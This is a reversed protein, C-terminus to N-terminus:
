PFFDHLKGILLLLLWMVGVIISLSSSFLAMRFEFRASSNSIALSCTGYLTAYLGMVLTSTVCFTGLYVFALKWDHLQVAPIVGLVGGPGAVGHILGACLSLIQKSCNCETCRHLALKCIPFPFFISVICAPSAPPCHIGCPNDHNRNSGRDSSPFDTQSSWNAFGLGLQGELENVSSALTARSRDTRVSDNVGFSDTEGLDSELQEGQTIACNSKENNGVLMIGHQMEDDNARELNADGIERNNSSHEKRYASIFGWVGLFIMFIGVFSELITELRHPVDIDEESSITILISGVVILGISHGIGWRVGYWFAQLMATNSSITALASLHDPGTLVHVFGMAIGNQVLLITSM